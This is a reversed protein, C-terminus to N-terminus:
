RRPIPLDALEKSGTPPCKTIKGGRALFEEVSEPPRPSRPPKKRRKTWDVWKKAKGAV